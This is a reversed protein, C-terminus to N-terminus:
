RLTSKFERPVTSNGERGSWLRNMLEGFRTAVAGSMGLPNDENIEERWVPSSFYKRLEPTNSLCQLASNM